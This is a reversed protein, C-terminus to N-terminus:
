KIKVALWCMAKENVVGAKWKVPWDINAGIHWAWKTAETEVEVCCTNTSWLSKPVNRCDNWISKELSCQLIKRWDLGWRSKLKNLFFAKQSGEALLQVPRVNGGSGKRRSQPRVLNGTIELGPRLCWRIIIGSCHSVKIAREVPRSQLHSIIVGINRHFPPPSPWPNTMGPSGPFTQHTWIFLNKFLLKKTVQPFLLCSGCLDPNHDTM